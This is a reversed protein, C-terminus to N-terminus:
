WLTKIAQGTPASVAILWQAPPDKLWGSTRLVAGISVKEADPRSV